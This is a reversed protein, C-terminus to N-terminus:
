FTAKGLEFVNCILDAPSKSKLLGKAGSCLAGWVYGEDFLVGTAILEKNNRNAYATPMAHKMMEINCSYFRKTWM